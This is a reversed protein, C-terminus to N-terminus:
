WAAGFAPSPRVRRGRGSVRRACCACGGISVSSRMLFKAIMSDSVSGSARPKLTSDPSVPAPLDIMTPASPRSSPSRAFASTMRVPASRAVTSPTNSTLSRGSIRSSSSSRPCRREVFRDDHELALDRWPRARAHILPVGTFALAGRRLRAAARSDARGARLASAARGRRAAVCARRTRRRSPARRRRHSRRM